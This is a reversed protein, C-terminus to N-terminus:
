YHKLVESLIKPLTSKLTNLKTVASNFSAINNPVDSASGPANCQVTLNAIGTSIDKVIDILEELKAKLTEGQTAKELSNIIPPTSVDIKFRIQNLKDIHKLVNEDWITKHGSEHGTSVEKPDYDLNVKLNTQTKIGGPFSFIKLVIPNDRKNQIFGVLCLQGEQYSDKHGSFFGMEGYFPGPLRLKTKEEGTFLRVDCRYKFLGSYVKTIEALELGNFISPASPGQGSFQIKKAPTFSEFLKKKIAM